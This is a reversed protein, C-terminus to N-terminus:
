GLNENMPIERVDLERPAEVSLKRRVAGADLDLASCIRQFSCAWDDADRALCWQRAEEFLRRGLPDIASRYKTLCELADDLVAVLLRQEPTLKRVAGFHQSPLLIDFQSYKRSADTVGLEKQWGDREVAPRPGVEVDLVESM